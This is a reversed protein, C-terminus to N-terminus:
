ELDEAIKNRKPTNNFGISDEFPKFERSAQCYKCIGAISSSPMGLIWHHANTPSKTCTNKHSFKKEETKTTMRLEKTNANKMLGTISKM